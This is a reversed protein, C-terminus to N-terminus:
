NSEKMIEIVKNINGKDYRGKSKLDHKGKTRQFYKYHSIQLCKRNLGVDSQEGLCNMDDAKKKRTYPEYKGIEKCAKCIQKQQFSSMKSSLNYCNQTSIGGRGPM